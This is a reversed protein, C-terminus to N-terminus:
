KISTARDFGIFGAPNLLRGPGHPWPPRLRNISRLAAQPMRQRQSIGQSGAPQRRFGGHKCVLGALSGISATGVAKALSPMMSSSFATWTSQVVGGM